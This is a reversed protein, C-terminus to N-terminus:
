VLKLKLLCIKKGMELWKKEFVTKITYLEELNENAYLDNTESLVEFGNQFTTEKSFEYFDQDDTKLYLIGNQMILNKYLNLFRTSTLRKEIESKRPRPDPFTIWIESVEKQAFFEEIKLIHTRVFAVNNQQKEQALTAGHWMRAGKIDVGIFNKNPVLEAMSNTYVGTGCGLELVIPNDNKFFAAWNGARNEPNQVVHPMQEM